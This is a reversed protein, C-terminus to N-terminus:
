IHLMSCSFELFAYDDWSILFFFNNSWELSLILFVILAPKCGICTCMCIRYVFKYTCSANVGVTYTCMGTFTCRGNKRDGVSHLVSCQTCSPCQDWRLCWRPSWRLQSWRPSFRPSQLPVRSKLYCIRDHLTWQNFVDKMKVSLSNFECIQSVM